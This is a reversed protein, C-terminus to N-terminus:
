RTIKTTYTGVKVLYVGSPLTSIDITENDNKLLRDDIIGGQMNCIRLRAGSAGCIHVVDKAPNPYVKCTSSSINELGTTESDSQMVTVTVPNVGLGAITVSAQRIVGTTNKDATIVVTDGDMGVSPDAHLWPQGPDVTWETNSKIIFSAKAGEAAVINLTNVSAKLAFNFESIHDFCKWLPANKYADLSGAPVYLICNTTDFDHIHFSNEVKIPVQANIKISDLSTCNNLNTYSMFTVKSSIIISTLAPCFHFADVPISDVAVPIKLSELMSCFTFAGLGIANVSQPIDINKLIQCNQFSYEEISKLNGPLTLATLHLSQSFAYPKITDVFEPIIYFPGKASPFRVVASQDKNFLVGDISSYHANASNVTFSAINDCGLFPSKSVNELSAPITLTILNMCGSFSPSFLQHVTSPIVYNQDTKKPPYLYLITKDKNFLVGDASSYNLNADDVNVSILSTSTIAEFGIYTASAPISIVALKDCIAFANAGITKLGSPLNISALSSCMVFAAQGIDTVSAPLQFSTMQTMMMFAMEPIRNKVMHAASLDISQLFPMNWRIFVCDNTDLTGTIILESLSSIESAPILTSLTGPTSVNVTKSTQGSLTVVTLALFAAFLLPKKM